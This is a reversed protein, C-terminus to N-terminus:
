RFRGSCRQAVGSVPLTRCVENRRLAKWIRHAHGDRERSEGPHGGEHGGDHHVTGVRVVCSSRSPPVLSCGPFTVSFPYVVYPIFSLAVERKEVGREGECRNAGLPAQVCVCVASGM